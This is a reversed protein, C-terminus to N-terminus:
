QLITIYPSSQVIDISLHVKRIHSSFSIGKFLLVSILVHVIL